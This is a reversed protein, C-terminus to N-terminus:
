DADFEFHFNLRRSNGQWDPDSRLRMQLQDELTASRLTGAYVLTREGAVLRGSLMRGKTTWVAEIASAEDRPLVMYIRGSRGVWDQTDIRINVIVWAEMGPSNAQGREMPLWQMKVDPPVTHSLSDDLRYPNALASASILASWALLFLRLFLRTTM